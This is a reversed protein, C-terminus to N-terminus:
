RGRLLVGACMAMTALAAAWPTLHTSTKAVSELQPLVQPSAFFGRQWAPANFAVVGTNGSEIYLGPAPDLGPIRDVATADPPVADVARWV